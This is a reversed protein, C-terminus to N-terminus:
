ITHSLRETLFNVSFHVENFCNEIAVPRTPRLHIEAHEATRDILVVAGIETIDVVVAVRVIVIGVISIAHGDIEFKAHTSFVTVFTHVYSGM